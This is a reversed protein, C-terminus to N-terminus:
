TGWPLLFTAAMGNGPSRLRGPKLGPLHVFMKEQSSRHLDQLGSKGKEKRKKIGLFDTGKGLEYVYEEM